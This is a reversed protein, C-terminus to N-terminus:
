YEQIDAYLPPRWGKGVRREESRRIALFHAATQQVIVRLANVCQRMVTRRHETAIRIRAGAAIARLETHRLVEIEPNADRLVASRERDRFLHQVVRRDIRAADAAGRAIRLHPQRLDRYSQAISM